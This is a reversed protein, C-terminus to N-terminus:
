QEEDSKIVIGVEDFQFLDDNEFHGVILSILNFVSGVIFIIRYVFTADDKSKIMLSVCFAFIAGILSSIGSSISLVGGIEMMYAITYVKMVHPNFISMMGIFFIANIVIIIAFFWENMLSFCLLVGIIIGASNVIILLKKFKLKDYLHGWVPGMICLFIGTIALTYKLLNTNFGQLSGITKFTMMILFFLFSSFFYIICLLYLRKSKFIKKLNVKDQKSQKYIIEEHSLKNDFENNQQPNDLSDASFDLKDTSQYKFFILLTLITGIPYITLIFLIYKFYNTGIEIPFFDNDKKIIVSCPNIITEGVFLVIPGGLQGFSMIIAAILGKKAPNYMCANKM